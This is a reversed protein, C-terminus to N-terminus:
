EDLVRGTGGRRPDGHGTRGPRVTHVGGFYLNCSPWVNVAWRRGLASVSEDPFGPEVQVVEGDWHVRPAEVAEAVDRGHGVYAAVVQGIATRIRKSGGSGLALVVDGPADLVFTPAMM